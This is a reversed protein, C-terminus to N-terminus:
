RNELAVFPSLTNAGKKPTLASRWWCRGDNRTTVRFTRENELFRVHMSEATRVGELTGVLYESWNCLLLDGKTGLTECFETFYIPLGLLQAPIGERASGMWFPVGQTGSVFAIKALQPITDYNALWMKPRWARALMKILNDYNITAAAQGSEKSVTVLCPSNLIGEFEGTGTGRLKENFVAAAVEQGFGQQIMAAFSIPSDSLLEETAYSVGYLTHASLKVKEIKCRSAAQTQTEARRYVQFGGTVSTTHDKDTRALIEVTPSSMPVNTVMSATPDSEPELMRLGPLLGVPISFGGYADSYEGHEDSGATARLPSLREDCRGPRAGMVATLFERPTKFGAKDDDEAALRIHGIGDNAPASRRTTATASGLTKKTAALKEAREKDAKEKAAVAELDAQAKDIEAMLEDLRADEAETREAKANLTEAEATLAKLSDHIEKKTM